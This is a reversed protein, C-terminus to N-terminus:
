HSESRFHATPMAGLDADIKGSTLLAHGDAPSCDGWERGKGSYERFFRGLTGTNGSRRSNIGHCTQFNKSVGYFLFRENDTKLNLWADGLGRANSVKKLSKRLGDIKKGLETIPLLVYESDNAV